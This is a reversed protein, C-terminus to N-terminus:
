EAAEAKDLLSQAVAQADPENYDVIWKDGSKVATITYETTKPQANNCSETVLNVIATLSVKLMDQAAKGLEEETINPDELKAMLEDLLQKTLKEAEDGHLISFIDSVTINKASVKFNWKGNAYEAGTIEYSGSGLIAEKCVTELKGIEEAYVVATEEETFYSKIKKTIYEGYDGIGLKQSLDTNTYTSMAAVDFKSYAAMYGDVAAKAAAKDEETNYNVEPKKAEAPNEQKNDAPKEEKNETPKEEKNEAPKEEKNEEAKEDAKEEAADDKKEEAKEEAKEEVKEEVKTDDALKEEKDKGCSVAVAAISLALLIALLKKM